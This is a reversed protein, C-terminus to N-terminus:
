RRLKIGGQLSQTVRDTFLPTYEQYEQDQM